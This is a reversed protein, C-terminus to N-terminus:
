ADILREKSLESKLAYGTTSKFHKDCCYPKNLDYFRKRILFMPSVGYDRVNWYRKCEVACCELKYKKYPILELQSFPLSLLEKRAAIEEASESQFHEPM